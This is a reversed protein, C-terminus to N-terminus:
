KKPDLAEIQRGLVEIAKKIWESNPVKDIIQVIPTGSLVGVYLVIVVSNAIAVSLKKSTQKATQKIFDLGFRGVSQILNQLASWVAFLNLRTATEPDSIASHLEHLDSYVNPEVNAPHSNLHHMVQELAKALPAAHVPELSSASSQDRFDKWEPFSSLYMNVLAIHAEAMALVLTSLEDECRLFLIELSSKALGVRIANKRQAVHNQLVQLGDIIRLDCNTQKLYGILRTGSDLIEERAAKAAGDNDSSHLNEGKICIRADSGIEFQIPSVIQSKPLDRQLDDLLENIVQQNYDSLEQSAGSLKVLTDILVSIAGSVSLGEALLQPPFAAMDEHGFERIPKFPISKAFNSFRVDASLPHLNKLILKYVLSQDKIPQMRPGFASRWGGVHSNFTQIAYPWDKLNPQGSVQSNSASGISSSIQQFIVELVPFINMSISAM